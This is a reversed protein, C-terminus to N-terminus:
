HFDSKTDKTEKKCKSTPTNLTYRNPINIDDVNGFIVKSKRRCFVLGFALSYLSTALFIQTSLPFPCKTIPYCKTCMFLSNCHTHHCSQAKSGLPIFKFYRFFFFVVFIFFSSVCAEPIFSSTNKVVISKIYARAIQTPLNYHM